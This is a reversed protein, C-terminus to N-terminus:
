RVLFVGLNREAHFAVAEFIQCPLDEGSVRVELARGDCEALRDVRRLVGKSKAEVISSLKQRGAAMVDGVNDVANARAVRESGTQDVSEHRERGTAFRHFEGGRGSAQLM